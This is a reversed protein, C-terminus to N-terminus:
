DELYWGCDLGEAAVLDVWAHPEFDVVDVLSDLEADEGELFENDGYDVDAGCDSHECGVVGHFCAVGSFEEDVEVDEAYAEVDGEDDLHEAAFPDVFGAGLGEGVGDFEGDFEGDQVFEHFDVM